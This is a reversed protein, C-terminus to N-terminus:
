HGREKWVPRERSLILVVLFGGLVVEMAVMALEATEPASLQLDMPALTRLAGDCVECTWVRM